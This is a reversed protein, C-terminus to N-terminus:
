RSDWLRYFSPLLGDVTDLDFARLISGGCRLIYTFPAQLGVLSRLLELLPPSALAYALGVQAVLLFSGRPSSCFPSSEGSVYCWRRRRRRRCCRCRAFFGLRFHDLSHGTRYGVLSSRSVRRYCPFQEM